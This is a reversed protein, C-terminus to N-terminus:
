ENKLIKDGIRKLREAERLLDKLCTVSRHALVMVRLYEAAYVPIETKGTAWASVTNVHLGLRRALEAQTWGLTTLADTLQQPSM